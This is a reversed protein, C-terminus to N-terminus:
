TKTGDDSKFYMAHGDSAARNGLLYTNSILLNNAELASIGGGSNASNDFIKCHNIRINESSHTIVGGGFGGSFGGRISFGDIIINSKSFMNVVSRSNDSRNQTFDSLIDNGSLDGSLTTENTTQILARNRQNISKENGAFGGYISM